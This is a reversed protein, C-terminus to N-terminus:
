RNTPAGYGTGDRPGIGGYGTGDGPGYTHGKRQMAGPNAQTGMLCSGDRLRTRDRKQIQVGAQTRSQLAQGKGGQEAFAAGPAATALALALVVIGKKTHKNM